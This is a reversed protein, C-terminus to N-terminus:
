VQGNAQLFALIIVDTLTRLIARLTEAVDM